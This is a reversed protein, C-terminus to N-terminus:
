LLETSKSAADSDISAVYQRTIRVVCRTAADITQRTYRRSADLHRM